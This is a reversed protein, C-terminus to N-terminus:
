AAVDHHKGRFPRYWARLAAVDAEVDGSSCRPTGIVITRRPYDFAVPLIPVGAAHAIHWFGTRWSAVHRRTGEPALALWLRPSTAFRAVMQEVVGHASGRDVAIGGLTRLLWGLPGVFLERKGVFAVDAGLAVKTILAWWGDWWSSHPAAILVLRPLDPFTGEIRWGCRRLYWACLRRGGHQPLQPMAPPLAPAPPAATM